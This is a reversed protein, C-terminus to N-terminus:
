FHGKREGTLLNDRVEGTTGPWHTLVASAPDSNFFGKEKLAYVFERAMCDPCGPKGCPTVLENNKTARDCGHGGVANIEIRFHGM